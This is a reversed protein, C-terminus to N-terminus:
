CWSVSESASRDKASANEPGASSSESLSSSFASLLRKTDSCSESTSEGGLDFMWRLTVSIGFKVVVFEVLPLTYPPPLLLVLSPTNAFM